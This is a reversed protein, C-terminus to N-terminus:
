HCGDRSRYCRLVKDTSADIHNLLPILQELVAQTRWNAVGFKEAERLAMNLHKIAEKFESRYTFTESMEFNHQWRKVRFDDADIESQDCSKWSFGTKGTIMDSLWTKAGDTYLWVRQISEIFPFEYREDDQDPENEFSDSFMQGLEADVACAHRLAARSVIEDGFLKFLLLARMYYWIPNTMEVENLLPLAEAAKDRLILICIQQYIKGDAVARKAAEAAFIEVSNGSSAM